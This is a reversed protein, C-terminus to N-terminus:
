FIVGESLASIIIDAEAQTCSMGELHSVEVSTYGSLESMTRTIFSPYGIYTNQSGPVCMRPVTLILYPIQHGMLGSSGGFGGSRQVDPKVASLAANAVGEVADAYNGSAIGGMIAGAGRALSLAINQYQGATVPVECSCTGSLEYLVHDNCKVQAVCTGGLIDISYKVAITGGMCDDPSIDVFGIYPLFLQLKSYPSYDLYAGWKPKIEISGCDVSVYQHTARDMSIGTSINGVVLTAPTTGIQAASVPVIHMGIIVDMPDAVLKKFNDVDFAGAWLYQALAQLNATTPVYLSIMGTDMAGIGPLDQFDVSTSTFDFTGDGFGGPASPGVGEEYPDVDTTINALNAIAAFITDSTQAVGSLDVISYPTDIPDSSVVVDLPAMRMYFTLGHYDHETAAVTPTSSARSYITYNPDTSILVPSAYIDGGYEAIWKCMCVVSFGDTTKAFSITTDGYHDLCDRLDNYTPIFLPGVFGTPVTDLVIYYINKDADYQPTSSTDLGGRRTAAGASFTANTSMFVVQWNTSVVTSFGCIRVGDELSGVYLAYDDDPNSHAIHLGQSLISEVTMASVVPCNETGSGAKEITGIEGAKDTLWNSEAYWGLGTDAM